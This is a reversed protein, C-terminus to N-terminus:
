FAAEFIDPAPKSEDTDDASTEDEVLDSIGLKENYSKLEKDGASTALVTQIRENEIKEFFERVKYFVEVKPFYEDLYLNKRYEKLEESFDEIEEPSLFRQLIKDAGMGILPLFEDITVEKDYKAFAKVFTEAHARNSDLLTGDIDILLAKLM